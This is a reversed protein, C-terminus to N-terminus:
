YKNRIQKQTEILRIIADVDEPKQIKMSDIARAEARKLERDAKRDLYENWAGIIGNTYIKGTTKTPSSDFDVGGGCVGDITLRFLLLGFIGKGTLRLWGPSEMQIKLVIDSRKFDIGYENCFGEILTPISNLACFDDLTVDSNTNIKLVLNATDDKTYFSNMVSDILTSHVTIDSLAHQSILPLQLLPPLVSRRKSVKWEIARRKHFLCENEDHEVEYPDGVIEGFAFRSSNASPIVIVDGVKMERVFKLIMAASRGASKDEPYRSKLIERLVIQAKKPKQPLTNIDSLSVLNCGVAIFNNTKFTDFFQGGMTRVFWYRKDDDIKKMDEIVSEFDLHEM